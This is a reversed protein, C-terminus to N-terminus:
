GGFQNRITCHHGPLIQASDNWVMLSGERNYPNARESHITLFIHMMAIYGCVALNM